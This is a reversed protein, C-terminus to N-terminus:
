DKDILNFPDSFNIELMKVSALIREVNRDIAQIGHSYQKLQLSAEKIVEIKSVVKKLDFDVSM